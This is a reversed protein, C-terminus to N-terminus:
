SKKKRWLTWDLVIASAVYISSYTGTFIGFGMTFAFARNVEGGFFLLVMLVVFITGSTIITRSLTENLSKNMIETLSLSRHIKENERIRDFIVVTDNVSVGILTLFAAIIETTIELNLGPVVGDLISLFGFTTFVDHVIAIVAGLGYVFKFRLAIYLLIAVFSWLIAYLANQRLEKGIKPFIESSGLLTAPNSPMGQQLSRVIRDILASGQGQETTRIILANESTGYTKIESTGLGSTRMATRVDAIQPPNAFAVIVETGGRFDIGLNIGKFALSLMGVLMMGSSVFYWLNRKGIFDIATKKFFRM